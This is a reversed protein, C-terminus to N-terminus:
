EAYHRGEMEKIYDYRTLKIDANHTLIEYFIEFLDYVKGMKEIDTYKERRRKTSLEFNKLYKEKNYPLCMIIEKGKIWNRCLSDLYYKWGSVFNFDQFVIGYVINSLIFRDVVCGDRRFNENALVDAFQKEMADKDEYYTLHGYEINYTDSLKKALTTKGSCDPGELIFVRDKFDEIM